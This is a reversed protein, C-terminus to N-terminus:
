LRLGGHQPNPVPPQNVPAPPKTPSAPKRPGEQQPGPDEAFQPDAGDNVLKRIDDEIADRPVKFVSRREIEIGLHDCWEKVIAPSISHTDFHTNLYEALEKMSSPGLQLCTIMAPRIIRDIIAPECFAYRHGSRTQQQTQQQTKRPTM